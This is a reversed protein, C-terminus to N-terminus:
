LAVARNFQITFTTQQRAVDRDIQRVWAGILQKREVRGNKITDHVIGRKFTVALINESASRVLEFLEVLKRRGRDQVDDVVINVGVERDFELNYTISTYSVSVGDVMIRGLYRGSESFGRVRKRKDRTKIPHCQRKWYGGGVHFVADPATRLHVSANNWRAREAETASIARLLDDRHIKENSKLRDKCWAKVAEAIERPLRETDEVTIEQAPSALLPRRVETGGKSDVTERGAPRKLREEKGGM